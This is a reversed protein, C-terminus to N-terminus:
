RSEVVELEHNVNRQSHSVPKLWIERWYCFDARPCGGLVRACMCTNGELIVTAEVKRMEGTSESIMRDLRSKVQYHKGCFKKLEIDCVLGRNCGKTDLTEQMEKQSKIEVWDGAQLGLDGVPTRSLSGVLRVRGFLRDKIKRYLPMLVLGVMETAGVVGFRLDRYCKAIIKRRSLRGVLTANALETSQCFYRQPSVKTKFTIAAEDSSTPAQRLALAPEDAKRLWATKWFLMCLRQCGDHNAGSCRLGDLLVVDNNLFERVEYVGGPRELCTKEAWRQIRFRKGCHEEMEPMFPLGDLSGDVSLTQAIERLNKVEVWDGPRLSTDTTAM